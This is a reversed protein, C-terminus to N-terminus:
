PKKLTALLDGPKKMLEDWECKALAPSWGAGIAVVGAARYALLDTESDGVGVVDKPGLGLRQLALLVGAPHPKPRADHYAVLTTPVLAHHTLVRGAYHSVSTTIVAWPIGGNSCTGLMDAVGAFMETEDLRRVADKWLRKTRLERLASTDVLTDDLDFLIGRAM